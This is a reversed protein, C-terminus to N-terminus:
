KARQFQARSRKILVVIAIRLVFVEDALAAAFHDLELVRSEIGNDLVDGPLVAELAAAMSKEDAADAGFAVAGADGFVPEIQNLILTRPRAVSVRRALSPGRERTPNTHQM